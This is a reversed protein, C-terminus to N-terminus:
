RVATYGYISTRFITATAFPNFFTLTLNGNGPVVNSVMAVGRASQIASACGNNMPYVLVGDEQRIGSVTVVTDQAYGSAAIIPVDVSFTGSIPFVGSKNPLQWARDSDLYTTNVSITGANGASNGAPVMRIYGTGISLGANAISLYPAEVSGNVSAVTSGSIPTVVLTSDWVGSSIIAGDAVFRYVGGMTQHPNGKAQVNQFDSYNRKEINM